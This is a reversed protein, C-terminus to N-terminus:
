QLRHGCSSCFRDSPEVSTGCQSCFRRTSSTSGIRMEMNGMRMEMPNMSMQMDGMKMPKMPKMPEMPQMSPLSSEPMSDVQQVQMRQASNLSPDASMVSTSGGQIRIFYEGREATIKVVFGDSNRFIEPPLTWSGTSFSNSSQQQQGSRSSATTVVTQSGQCDLYVRRDGGIECVYAM